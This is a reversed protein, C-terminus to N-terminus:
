SKSWNDIGHSRIKDTALNIGDIIGAFHSVADADCQTLDAGMASYLAEIDVNHAYLFQALVVRLQSPSKKSESM